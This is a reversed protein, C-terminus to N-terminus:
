MPSVLLFTSTRISSFEFGELSESGARWRRLFGVWEKLQRISQVALRKVLASDKFAQHDLLPVETQVFLDMRIYCFQEWRSNGLAYLVHM